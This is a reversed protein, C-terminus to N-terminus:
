FACLVVVQLGETGHTECINVVGGRGQGSINASIAQGDTLQSAHQLLSPVNHGIAKYVNELHIYIIFLPCICVPVTANKNQAIYM